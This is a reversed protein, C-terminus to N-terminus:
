VREMVLVGDSNRHIRCVMKSCLTGSLGQMRLALPLIQASGTRLVLQGGTAIGRTDKGMRLLAQTESVQCAARVRGVIEHCSGPPILVDEVLPVDAFANALSQRLVKAARCIPLLAARLSGRAASSAQGEFLRVADINAKAFAARDIVDAQFPCAEDMSSASSADDDSSSPPADDPHAVSAM